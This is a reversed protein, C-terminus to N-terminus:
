RNYGNNLVKLKVNTNSLKFISEFVKAIILWYSSALKKQHFKVLLSTKLKDFIICVKSNLVPLGKNSNIFYTHFNVYLM